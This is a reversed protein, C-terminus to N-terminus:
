IGSGRRDLVLALHIVCGFITMSNRPVKVIGIDRAADVIRQRSLLKATVLHCYPCALESCLYTADSHAFEKVRLRILICAAHCLASSDDNPRM